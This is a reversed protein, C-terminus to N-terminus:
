RKHNWGSELYGPGGSHAVVRMGYTRDKNNPVNFSSMDLNCSFYPSTMLSAGLSSENAVSCAQFSMYMCRGPCLSNLFSETQYMPLVCGKALVRWSVQWEYCRIVHRLVDHCRGVDVNACAHTAEKSWREPFFSQAVLRGHEVVVGGYAHFLQAVNVFIIALYSLTSDHVHQVPGVKVGHVDHAIKTRSFREVKQVLTM